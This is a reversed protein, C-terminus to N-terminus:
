RTLLSNGLDNGSLAVDSLVISARRAQRDLYLLSSYGGTQGDHWTVIHGDPWTNIMWFTGIQLDPADRLHRPTLASMGPARDTLLAVALLSLDRSTSVVAGAPAYGQMTWPQVPRGTATHGPAVIRTSQVATDSMRLPEFLRTRMLEPYSLGAATAAARGALAAGINSYRFTGRGTLTVDRAERLLEADSAGLLRLGLPARWLASLQTTTSDRPLGATHTVLEDITIDALITGDVPLYASLHDSLKLEGRDVEDAIVLGTMAKTLSGVEFRATDAAGVEAHRVPDAANLDILDVALRHYGGAPAIDVLLAQDGTQESALRPSLAWSAASLLTIVLIVTLFSRRTAVYAAVAVIVGAVLIAGSDAWPTSSTLTRVLLNLAALFVLAARGLRLRGTLRGLQRNSRVLARIPRRRIVQMIVVLVAAIAVYGLIPLEVLWVAAAWVVVVAASERGRWRETPPPPTTTSGDDAPSAVPAYLTTNTMGEAEYPETPRVMASASLENVIGTTLSRSVM